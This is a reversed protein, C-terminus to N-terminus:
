GELENDDIPETVANPNEGHHYRRCYENLDDLDNLITFLPHGSGIGLVKGVIVDLMDEQLFQTPYLNRCYGELVPRIKQIVDRPEGENLAHYKHLTELDARYQARVALEIDWEAITTNDERVRTFQLTKWDEPLLLDWV